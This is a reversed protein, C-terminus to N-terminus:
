ESCSTLSIGFEALESPFPERLRREEVWTQSDCSWYKDAKDRKNKLEYKWPSGVDVTAIWWREENDLIVPDNV